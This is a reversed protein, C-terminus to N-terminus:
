IPPVCACSLHPSCLRLESELPPVSPANHTRQPMSVEESVFARLNDAHTEADVHPTDDVNAHARSAGSRAAAAEDPKAERQKSRKLAPQRPTLRPPAHVWAPRPPETHRIYADALAACVSDNSTIPSLRSGKWKGYYPLFGEPVSHHPPARRFPIVCGPCRELLMLTNLSHSARLDSPMYLAHSPSPLRSFAISSSLLSEYRHSARLDSPMYLAAGM